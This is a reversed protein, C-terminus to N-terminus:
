GPQREDGRLLAAVAQGDNAPLAPADRVLRPTTFQVAPARGAARAHLTGVDEPTRRKWPHKYGPVGATDLDRRIDTIIEDAPRNDIEDGLEPSDLRELL